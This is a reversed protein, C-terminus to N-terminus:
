DVVPLGALYRELDHRYVISGHPQPCREPDESACIAMTQGTMWHEFDKRRLETKLIHAVQKQSYGLPCQPHPLRQHIEQARRFPPPWPHHGSM